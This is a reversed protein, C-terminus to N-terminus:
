AVPVLVCVYVGRECYSKCTAFGESTHLDYWKAFYQALQEVCEWAVQPKRPARSLLVACTMTWHVKRQM